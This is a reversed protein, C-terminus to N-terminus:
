SNCEPRELKAFEFDLIYQDRAAFLLQIPKTMQEYMRVLVLRDEYWAQKAAYNDWEELYLRKVNPPLTNIVDVPLTTPQTPMRPAVFHHRYQHLIAIAAATVEAFTRATYYNDGNNSKLVLIRTLDVEELWSLNKPLM